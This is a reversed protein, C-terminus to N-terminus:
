YVTSLNKERCAAAAEEEEVTIMITYLAQGCRELVQYIQFHVDDSKSSVPLYKKKKHQAILLAVQISKSRYICM